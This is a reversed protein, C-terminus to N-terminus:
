SRGNMYTFIGNEMSGIAKYIPEQGPHVQCGKRLPNGFAGIVPSMPGVKNPHVLLHVSGVQLFM